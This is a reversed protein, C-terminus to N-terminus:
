SPVYLMKSLIQEKFGFAIVYRPLPAPFPFIADVFVHLKLISNTKNYTM